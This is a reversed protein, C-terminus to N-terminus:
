AVQREGPSALWDSLLAAEEALASVLQRAVLGLAVEVLPRYMAAVCFGLEFTAERVTSHLAGRAATAERFLMRGHNVVKGRLSPLEPVNEFTLLGTDYHLTSREEWVFWEAPLSFPGLRSIFPRARYRLTRELRTRTRTLALPEIEAFFSHRESLLRPYSTDALSELVHAVPAGFEHRLSLQM